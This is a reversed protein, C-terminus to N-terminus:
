PTQKTTLSSTLYKDIGCRRGVLTIAAFFVFTLYKGREERDAHLERLVGLEESLLSRGTHLTTEPACGSTSANQRRALSRLLGRTADEGVLWDLFLRLIFILSHYRTPPSNLTGASM